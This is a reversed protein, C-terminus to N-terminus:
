GGAGAEAGAGAGREWGRSVPLVLCLSEYSYVSRTVCTAKSKSCWVLSDLNALSHMEELVM